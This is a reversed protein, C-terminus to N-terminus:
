TPSMQCFAAVELQVASATTGNNLWVRPCLQVSNRPLDSTVTGSAFFATDLREVYYDIETANPPAYMWFDYVATTSVPFNAGLSTCTAAGSNDNTCFSLVTAASDYGLYASDLLASPNGNPLLSSPTDQVGLFMRQQAVTTSTGFRIWYLFGGLDAANGRWVQDGNAVLGGANGALASSTLRVRRMASIMDTTAIAPTTATGATATVFGWGGFTSANGPLLCSSGGIGWMPQIPFARDLPTRTKLMPFNTWGTPALSSIKVGASPAAADTTAPVSIPNTGDTEFLAMGGFVGSGANYQAENTNGSPGAGAGLPVTITGTGSSATCTVGAGACNLTSISGLGSAEEQLAILMPPVYGQSELWRETLLMLVVCLLLRRKM